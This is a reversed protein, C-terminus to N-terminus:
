TKAPTMMWKRHLPYPSDRLRALNGSLQSGSARAHWYDAVAGDISKPDVSRWYSVVRDFRTLDVSKGDRLLAIRALGLEADMVAPSPGVQGSSFEELSIKLADEALELEGAELLALGMEARAGARESVRIPQGEITAFAEKAAIAAEATQGQLRAILSLCRTARSREVLSAQAFLPQLARYEAAAEAFRGLQALAVCQQRRPLFPMAPDSVGAAQAARSAEELTSMAQAPSRAALYVGALNNRAIWHNRHDNPTLRFSVEQAAELHQIALRLQGSLALALGLYEEALAVSITGNGQIIREDELVRTLLVVADGPKGSRMQADALRRELGSIMPHPRKYVARAATAGREAVSLAEAVKGAAVLQSSWHSLAEISAKHREGLQARAISAAEAHLSLGLERRSAGTEAYGLYMLAYVLEETLPPDAKRLIEIFSPLQSAVQDLTGLSAHATFAASRARLVTPASPSLQNAYRKLAAEIIEGGAKPENTASLSNAIVTAVELALSSSGGLENDIRSAAKTLIASAPVRGGSGYNPDIDVFISALFLKVQEARQQDIRAQHAQWGAVGAGIALSLVAATAAGVTVKNRAAFKLARYSLSTPRALVPRGELHRQLDEAFAAITEYREVPAKRLAKLTITDLDGSLVRTLRPVSMGRAEADSKSVTASPRKPEATTIAQELQGVSLGKLRYPRGGTLLEYLLVGLSYVDTAITLPEGGLQEPSAYDPTLARGALRTLQTEHAIEDEALLKAIGFDLLRVDGSPTVLINSPKIDRHIVLNAHAYQVAGLVQSFLRLRESIGLRKADCYETIPQGDVYEMALYPLGDESVGADYLRAIKPHELRALIDREREFRHALDRRLRNLLPLKLAVERTFAGDAREALWVDAMGGSGLERKLRYPGVRNGGALGSARGASDVPTRLAPLRALVDATQSSAHAALLKRLSLVLAPETEGLREMWQARAAPDLDLAEDLLKSLTTWTVPSIDM